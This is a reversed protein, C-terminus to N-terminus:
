IAEAPEFPRHCAVTRDSGAVILPPARDICPADARDCRPHFHCGSPLADTAAITGRIPHAPRPDRTRPDPPVSAILGATYPHRPAAFLDATPATEVVRGCYLVCVRHAIQAVVGLDHSILMMAVGTEDQIDRLLNLVQRQVTVDLATTPEDAILLDPQGSLALAIMVRQSM